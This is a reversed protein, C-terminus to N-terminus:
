QVLTLNYTTAPVAVASASINTLRMSVTNAASVWVQAVVIGNGLAALPSVTATASTLAGTMAFTVTVSSGAALTGITASPTAGDLHSTPLTVTNGGAGSLTLSQGSLSLTRTATTETSGDPFILGSGSSSIQISGGTVDLKQSPTGSTGIGVNGGTGM